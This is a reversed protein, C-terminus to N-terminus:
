VAGTEDLVTGSISGASLLQPAPPVEERQTQVVPPQEPQAQAPLGPFLAYLLWVFGAPGIMLNRVNRILLRKRSGHQLFDVMIKGPNQPSRCGARGVGTLRPRRKM